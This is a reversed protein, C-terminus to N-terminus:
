WVTEDFSLAEKIREVEALIKSEEKADMNYKKFLLLLQRMLAQDIERGNIFFFERKMLNIIKKEFSDDIMFKQIFGTSGGIDIVAM